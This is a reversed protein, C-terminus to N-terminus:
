NPPLPGYESGTAASTAKMVQHHWLMLAEMNDELDMSNLILANLEDTIASHMRNDYNGVWKGANLNWLLDGNNMATKLESTLRNLDDQIKEDNSTLLPFSEYLGRTVNLDDGYIGWWLYGLKGAMTATIFDCVNKSSFPLFGTNGELLENNKSYTPPEKFSVPLWYRATKKYWLKHTGQKSQVSAIKPLQNLYKVLEVLNPNGLNPWQNQLLSSPIEGYRLTEFLTPRQSSNWVNHNTSYFPGQEPSCILITCRIEVGTFLASPRIGFTSKYITGFRESILNRCAQFRKGYTLSFHVIMSLRGDSKTLTSARELCAAYIDPCTATKFEPYDYDIEKKAVYPPNGIVADFGGAAIVDPFEVIWHFPQMRLKYTDLDENGHESEHWWRDLQDKAKLILETLISKTNKNEQYAGTQQNRRFSRYTDAVAEATSKIEDIKHMNLLDVKAQVQELSSAGVLSNGSKINFELDPLPEIEERTEIQAILKLFLRLRAIEIADQMIDVGYLNNLTAHKLIFYEINPSADALDIVAQLEKNESQKLSQSSEFVAMYLNHLLKLAAFLFAGSGCMPDIVKLSTLISWCTLLKEADDLEDILDISLTELDLNNAICDDVTQITGDTLSQHLNKFHKRRDVIEWWSEEPLGLHGPIDETDYSPRKWGAEERIKDPIPNNCGHKVSEWIYRDPNEKLLTTIEIGTETTIKQLFVALVTNSAMYGTIDEKTYYAGKDVNVKAADGSKQIEEEHNVFQEFIYGLVDPNIENPSGTPRDDLHWQWQDFFDFIKEFAIDPIRITNDSEVPHQSFIGGNVFPVDGLLARIENDEINRHEDEEGLGDHFLPMLFDKYFDYFTDLSNLERIRKLRNRLYDVDDDLFGKRQMFYIFMLRNLLIRGYWVTDNRSQKEIENIGEIANVLETGQLTFERYFRKTIEDANFAKRLRQLIETVSVEVEEMSIRIFQLRQQLAENPKGVLHKHAILRPTGRGSENTSQPWRWIQAHEDHFIIVRETSEKRLEKDIHRQILNSPIEQCEWITVGKYQAVETLTFIENEFHIQINQSKRLPRQWGLEEIFLNTFEGVDIYDTVWRRSM